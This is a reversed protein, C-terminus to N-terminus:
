TSVAPSGELETRMVGAGDRDLNYAIYGDASWGGRRGSKFTAMPCTFTGSETRNVREALGCAGGAVAIGYAQLQYHIDLADFKRDGDEVSDGGDIWDVHAYAGRTPSGHAICIRVRLVTDFGPTEFEVRQSRSCTNEALAPSGVLVGAGVIAAAVLGKMRKM